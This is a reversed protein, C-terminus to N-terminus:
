PTVPLWVAYLEATGEETLANWGCGVFTGSGDPATNYGALVYGDRTFYGLDPLTNPFYYYDDEYACCFFDAHGFLVGGNAHYTVKQTATYSAELTGTGWKINTKTTCFRM